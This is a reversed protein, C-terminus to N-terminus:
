NTFILMPIYCGTTPMCPADAKPTFTANPLGTTQTAGSSVFNGAALLPGNSAVNITAVLSNSGAANYGTLVLYYRGSLTCNSPLTFYNWGTASGLQPGTLTSSLSCVISSATPTEPTGNFAAISIAYYSSTSKDIAALNYYIKNFTVTGPVVFSYIYTSGNPFSLASGTSGIGLTFFPLQPGKQSAIANHVFADTAVQQSADATTQTTATSGNALPKPDTEAPVFAIFGISEAGLASSPAYQVLLVDGVPVSATSFACADSTGRQGHISFTNIASFTFPCTAVTSGATNDFVIFNQSGVAGVKGGVVLYMQSTQPVRTGVALPQGAANIQVVGAASPTFWYGPAPNGDGPVSAKYSVSASGPGNIVSTSYDLLLGCRSTFPSGIFGSLFSGDFEGPVCRPLNARMPLLPFNSHNASM